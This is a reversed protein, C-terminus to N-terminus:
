QNTSLGNRQGGGASCFICRSEASMSPPTHASLGSEGEMVLVEPSGFLEGLADQSQLKQRM